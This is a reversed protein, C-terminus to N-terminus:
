VCIAYRVQLNRQISKSSAKLLLLALRLYTKKGIGPLSSIECVAEEIIKSSYLAM